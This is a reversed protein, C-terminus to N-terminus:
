LLTRLLACRPSYMVVIAVFSASEAHKYTASCPTCPTSGEWRWVGVVVSWEGGHVRGGSGKVM